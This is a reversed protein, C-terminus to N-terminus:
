GMLWGYGMGAVTSLVVVISCYVATKKIGM